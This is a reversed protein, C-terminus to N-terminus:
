GGLREIAKRKDADDVWQYYSATTAASAHGALKQVVLQNVGLRLLDTCFTKRLDHITAPPIGAKAVIRRFAPPVRNKSWARWPGRDKLTTSQLIQLAAVAVPHLPQIRDQKGKTHRVVMHPDARLNVDAWTLALLEGRRCGTTLAVLVFTRWQHDPCAALLTAKEDATLVRPVKREERAWNWRAFPTSEAYGRSVAAKLAARVYRLRKNITPLSCKSARLVRVFHELMTYSVVHPGVPKCADFFFRLSREMEERHAAGPINELHEKAFAAWPVHKVMGVAGSLLNQEIKAALRRAKAKSPGAYQSRRKGTEPDTWRAHYSRGKKTARSCVCVKLAGNM